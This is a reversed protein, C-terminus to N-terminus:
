TSVRTYDRLRNKHCGRYSFPKNAQRPRVTWGLCAACGLIKNHLVIEMGPVFKFYLNPISFLYLINVKTPPGHTMLINTVVAFKGVFARKM